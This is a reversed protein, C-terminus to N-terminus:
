IKLGGRDLGNPLDPALFVSTILLIGAAGFGIGYVFLYQGYDVISENCMEDVLVLNNSECYRFIENIKIVEFLMVLSVTILAAGLIFSYVLRM